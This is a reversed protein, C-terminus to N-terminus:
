FNDPNVGKDILWNHDLHGYNPKNILHQNALGNWVWCHTLGWARKNFPPELLNGFGKATPTFISCYSVDQRVGNCITKLKDVLWLGSKFTFYLHKISATKNVFKIIADVNDDIWGLKAMYEIHNDSYAGAKKGNHIGSGWKFENNVLVYRDNSYEITPTNDKIGKVINAFVIRGKICIEFIQSFTPQINEATRPSVFYNHNYLFLNGLVPWMYMGRGYFFDSNNWSWDHNYTGIFMVEPDYPITDLVSNHIQFGNRFDHEQYRHLLTM